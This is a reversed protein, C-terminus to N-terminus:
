FTWQLSLRADLWDEGAYRHLGLEAVAATSRTLTLRQGLGFELDTERDGALFRAGRAFLRGKWRDGPTAVELGLEVGPGVAWGHDFGSGMELWAEALGYLVVPGDGPAYTLGVSGGSRWVLDRDLDGDDEPYLRTRIGTELGWSRPRFFDDRPTTSRLEALVLEELRVRGSSPFVRVRTDLFSIMSDGPFGAVPDLIGHLAPRVRLEIFGEDDEVGGGLAVLATGHGDEPQV